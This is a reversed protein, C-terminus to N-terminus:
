SLVRVGGGGGGWVCVCGRWEGVQSNDSNSPHTLVLPSQLYCLTQLSSGIYQRGDEWGVGVSLLLDAPLRLSIFM